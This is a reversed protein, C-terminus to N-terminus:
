RSELAVRVANVIQDMDYPKGVIEFVEGCEGVLEELRRKHTTTIVWKLKKLAESSQLLRLFRWNEEYPLAVDYIVVEPQHEKVFDLVDVQGKKIDSVHGSSVAFGHEELAIKLIEITDESSNFVAVSTMQKPTM